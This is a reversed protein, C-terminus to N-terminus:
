QMAANVTNGTLLGGATGNGSINFNSAAQQSTANQSYNSSGAPVSAVPIAGTVAGGLTITRLQPVVYPIFGRALTVDVLDEYTCMGQVDAVDGDVDVVGTLGSVDHGAASASRGRFLNSTRKALRVREGVPIGRYSEVLRDVGAEHRSGVVVSM